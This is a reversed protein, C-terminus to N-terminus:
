DSLMWAIIEEIGSGVVEGAAEVRVAPLLVLVDAVRAVPVYVPKPPRVVIIPTPRPLVTISGYVDVPPLLVLGQGSVTAPQVRPRTVYVMTGDVTAVAAEPEPEPEPEPEAEEAFGYKPWYKQPWYAEPWAGGPWM